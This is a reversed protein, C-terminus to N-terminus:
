SREVLTGAARDHLGRQDSDMILAPVALCLLLTRALAPGPGAPRGDLRVVRVGALRHGIAAGLTGVLVAQEVAFVLLAARPTGLLANAILLSLGWDVLLAVMRRGLGAVAGPGQEPRGLRQGPYAQPDRDPGGPSDLWSGIGRRDAVGAVSDAHGIVIM